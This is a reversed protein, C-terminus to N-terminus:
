LVMLREDGTTTCRSIQNRPQLPPHGDRLLHTRCVVRCRPL